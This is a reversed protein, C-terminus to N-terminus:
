QDKECCIQCYGQGCCCLNVNIVIVRLGLLGDIVFVVALVVLIIVVDIAVLCGCRGISLVDGQGLAHHALKVAEDHVPVFAVVESLSVVVTAVRALVGLKGFLFVYM